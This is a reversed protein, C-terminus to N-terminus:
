PWFFQKFQVKAVKDLEVETEMRGFQSGEVRFTVLHESGGSRQFRYVYKEGETSTEIPEPSIEKIQTHEIFERGFSLQFQDKGQPRCYFKLDGPAQNRVFREYQVQLPSGSAGARAHSIPGPGLLGALAALALVAMLVWGARQVCWEREEHEPDYSVEIEGFRRPKGM